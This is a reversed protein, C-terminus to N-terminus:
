LYPITWWWVSMQQCVLDKILTGPQCGPQAATAKRASGWPLHSVCFYLLFDCLRSVQGFKIYESPIWPELGEWLVAIYFRGTEHSDTFM